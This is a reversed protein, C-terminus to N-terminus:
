FLKHNISDLRAEGNQGILSNEIEAEVEGVTEDLLQADSLVGEQSADSCTADQAKAPSVVEPMDEVKFQPSGDAKERSKCFLAVAPPVEKPKGGRFVFEAKGYPITYTSWEDELLTVKPM